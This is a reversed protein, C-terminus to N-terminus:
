TESASSFNSGPQGEPAAAGASILDASKANKKSPRGSRKGDEVYRQLIPGGVVYGKNKAKQLLRTFGSPSYGTIDRIRQRSSGEAHMALAQCRLGVDNSGRPM